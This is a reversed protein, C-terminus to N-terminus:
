DSRSAALEETPQAGQLDAESPQIGPLFVTFVTGIDPSSQVAIEGGHAAVISAVISLGLGVGGSSRSRSTDARYFRDFIRELDASAIGPGRDGVILRVQDEDQQVNIDVPTGPPTHIRANALLNELVQKIRDADGLATVPGDHEYSVRQEPGAAQADMAAEEVLAVLDVPDQRIPRGQDLRALLLLDEVLRGMRTGESEIRGMVRELEEPTAVAGSRYLEAYGRISTLPTRLEHSADAVFQRLRQESAERAAFSAEIQALMANLATGLRGVESSEDEIAVRQSLDGEAIDGATVIMADVPALGHRIVFWVLGTMVALAAIGLSAIILSLNRVTADVEDLPAAVIQFGGGGSRQVLVRYSLGGDVAGVTFPKGAVHELDDPDFESLDPLPDPDDTFGSPTSVIVSGDRGITLLATPASVLTGTDDTESPQSGPSREGGKKKGDFKTQTAALTEDVRDIMGARTARVTVIATIVFAATVLISITIVLRAKISM